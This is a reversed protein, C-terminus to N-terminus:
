SSTQFWWSTSGRVLKCGGLSVGLTYASTYTRICALCIRRYVYVTQIDLEYIYTQIRRIRRYVLQVYVDTYSSSLYTQICALHSNPRRWCFAELSQSWEIGVCETTLSCMRYYSFVNQLCLQLELEMRDWRESFELEVSALRQCVNGFLHEYVYAYVYVCMYMYACICICVYVYVCMYMYICICVCLRKWLPTRVRAPHLYLCLM